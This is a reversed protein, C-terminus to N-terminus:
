TFMISYKIKSVFAVLLKGIARLVQNTEKAMTWSGITDLIPFSKLSDDDTNLYNYELQHQRRKKEIDVSSHTSTSPTPTVTTTNDTHNNYGFFSSVTGLLTNNSTSTTVKEKTISTM